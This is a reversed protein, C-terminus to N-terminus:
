VIESLKKEGTPFRGIRAGVVEDALTQYLDGVTGTLRTHL